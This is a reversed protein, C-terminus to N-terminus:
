HPMNFGTSRGTDTIVITDVTITITTDPFTVCNTKFSLLQNGPPWTGLIIKAPISFKVM